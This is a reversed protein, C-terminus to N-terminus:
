DYSTAHLTLKLVGFTGSDCVESNRRVNSFLRLHRGGTGVVFQRMGNPNAEGAYDQSALREYDHNHGVFVVDVGSEDLLKWVQAM